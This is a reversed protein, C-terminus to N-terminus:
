QSILVFFFFPLNSDVIGDSNSLSDKKEKMVVVISKLAWCAADSGRGFAHSLGIASTLM